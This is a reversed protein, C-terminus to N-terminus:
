HAKQSGLRQRLGERSTPKVEDGKITEHFKQPKDHGEVDSEVDIEREEKSKHPLSNRNKTGM